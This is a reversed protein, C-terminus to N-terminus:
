DDSVVLVERLRNADIMEYADLGYGVYVRSDQLGQGPLKCLIDLPVSLDESGLHAQTAYAPMPWQVGSWQGQADLQFWTTPPGAAGNSAVAVVYVHYKGDPASANRPGGFVRGSFSLQNLGGALTTQVRFPPRSAPAVNPVAPDLDLDGTGAISNVPTPELLDGYTGAGLQGQRGQGYAWVTGDALRFHVSTHRIGTGLAAETIAAHLRFSRGAPGDFAPGQCQASGDVLVACFNLGGGHISTATKGALLPTPTGLGGGQRWTWVTGSRDLAILSGNLAVVQQAAPVGPVLVPLSSSPAGQPIGMLGLGWVAGQTDLVVAYTEALAVAKATRGPDGLALKVPAAHYTGDLPLKQGWTWLAGQVDIAMTSAANAAVTRVAGPLAVQSPTQPTHSEFSNGLNVGWNYLRGDATIAYTVSAGAHLSAVPPLFPVPQPSSRSELTRRIGLQLNVNSGLGHLQGDLRTYMVSPVAGDYASMDAVGIAIRKLLSGSGDDAEAESARLWEWLEGSTTLAYGKIRGISLRQVPPLGKLLAPSISSSGDNAAFYRALVAGAKTLAYAYEVPTVAAGKRPQCAAATNGGGWTWAFGETDVATVTSAYPVSQFTPSLDIWVDKIPPLGSLRVPVQASGTLGPDMLVCNRGGGWGWLGGAEDIAVLTGATSFAKTIRAPFEAAMQPSNGPTGAGWWWVKGNRDVALSRGGRSGNAIYVANGLITTPEARDVRTGDGLEGAGNTGWSSVNGMSDLALVSTDSARVSITPGAVAIPRASPTVLTVGQGLQGQRNDGWALVSGDATLAAAHREGSALSQAHADVCSLALLACASMRHFPPAM